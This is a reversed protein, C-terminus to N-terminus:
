RLVWGVVRAAVPPLRHMVRRGALRGFVLAHVAMTVFKLVVLAVVVDAVNGAWRWAVLVPVLLVVLHVVIALAGVAGLGWTMRLRGDGAAGEAPWATAAGDEGHVSTLALPEEWALKLDDRSGITELRRGVLDQLRLLGIEDAAEVRLKLAEPTAELVCRNGGIRLVAYTDCWEVSGM